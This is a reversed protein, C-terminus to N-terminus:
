PYGREGVQTPHDLGLPPTHCSDQKNGSTNMTEHRQWQKAVATLENTPAKMENTYLKRAGVTSARPEQTAANHYIAKIAHM